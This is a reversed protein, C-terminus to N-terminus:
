ISIHFAVRVAVGVIRAVAFLTFVPIALVASGRAAVYLLGM